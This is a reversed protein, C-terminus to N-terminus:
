ILEKQGSRPQRLSLMKLRRKWPQRHEDFQM